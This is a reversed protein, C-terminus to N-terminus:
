SNNCQYWLFLSKNGETFEGLFNGYAWLYHGLGASRVVFEQERKLLEGELVVIHISRASEIWIGTEGYGTGAGSSDIMIFSQRFSGDDVFTWRVFPNPFACWDSSVLRDISVSVPAFFAAVFVLLFLLSAILKKRCGARWGLKIM